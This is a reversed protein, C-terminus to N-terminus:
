RRVLATILLRYFDANRRWGRRVIAGIRKHQRADEQEQESEDHRRAKAALHSRYGGGIKGWGANRRIACVPEALSGFGIRWNM